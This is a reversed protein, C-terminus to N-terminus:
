PFRDGANGPGSITREGGRPRLYTAPRTAPVAVVAGTPHRVSAAVAAVAAATAGSAALGANALLVALALRLALQRGVSSKTERDV